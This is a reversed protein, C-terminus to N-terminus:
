EIKGAGFLLALWMGWPALCLAVMWELDWNGGHFLLSGLLWGRAAGALGGMLVIAVFRTSPIGRLSIGFVAVVNGGIMTLIALRAIGHGAAEMAMANGLYVLFGLAALVLGAAFSGYSLAKNRQRM